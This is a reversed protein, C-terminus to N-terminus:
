EFLLDVAGYPLPVESGFVLFCNGKGSKITSNDQIQRYCLSHPFMSIGFSAFAFTGASFVRIWLCILVVSLCISLSV